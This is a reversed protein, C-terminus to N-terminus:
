VYGLICLWYFAERYAPLMMNENAGDHKREFCLESKQSQM